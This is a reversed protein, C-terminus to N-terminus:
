KFLRVGEFKTPLMNITVSPFLKHIIEGIEKCGNITWGDINRLTLIEKQGNNKLFIFDLYWLFIIASYNDWPPKFGRFRQQLEMSRTQSLDLTYLTKWHFLFRKLVMLKNLDVVIKTNFSAISPYILIVAPIILVLIVFIGFLSLVETGVAKIFFLGFGFIMLYSLFYAIRLYSFVAPSITLGNTTKEIVIERELKNVTEEM